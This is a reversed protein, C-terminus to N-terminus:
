SYGPPDSAPFSEWSAEEVLDRTGEGYRRDLDPRPTLWTAIAHRLLQSAGSRAVAGGAITLLTGFRSKSRMGILLLVGGAATRALAHEISLEPVDVHARRAQESTTMTRETM